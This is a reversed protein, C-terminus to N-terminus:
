NKFTCLYGVVFRKGCSDKTLKGAIAELLSVIVDTVISLYRLQRYPAAGFFFALYHIFPLFHGCITEKGVISLGEKTLFEDMERETKFNKHDMRAIMASLKDASVKNM